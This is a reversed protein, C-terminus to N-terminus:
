QKGFRRHQVFLVAAAKVKNDLDGEIIDDKRLEAIVENLATRQLPTYEIGYEDDVDDLGRLVFMMFQQWYGTYRERTKRATYISFPATHAETNRDSTLWYLILKWDRNWCDVVGDWCQGIVRKTSEWVLRLKELNEVNHKREALLDNLVKMDRGDFRAMWGTHRLWPTLEQLIGRNHIEYM